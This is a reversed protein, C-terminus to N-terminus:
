LNLVDRVVEPSISLASLPLPFLNAVLPTSRKHQFTECHNLLHDLDGHARECSPCTTTDQLGIRHRYTGLLVSDGTRLQAIRTAVPRPLINHVELPDKGGLTSPYNHRHQHPANNLHYLTAHRTLRQAATSAAQLSIPVASQDLQAAQNALADAAENGDLNVHGPVYVLDTPPLTRLISRIQHVLPNRSTAAKIAIISSQSDTCLRLRTLGPPPSSVISSVAAHIAVLETQYSSCVAGAPATINRGPDFEFYCGAGGNQTGHLASGDTWLIHSAQPLSALKLHAQRLRVAPPDSNNADLHPYYAVHDMGSLPAPTTITQDRPLHEFNAATATKVAALRWYNMRNNHPHPHDDQGAIFNQEKPTPQCVGRAPHDPLRLIRERLTTARNTAVDSISPIRGEHRAIENPVNRAIGAAARAGACNLGEPRTMYSPKAATAWVAASNHAVSAVYGLHATRITHASSGWSKSAIAKVANLRKGMQASVHRAHAGFGLERDLVVGLFKPNNSVPLCDQSGPRPRIKIVPADPATPAHKRNTSFLSSCSKTDNPLLKAQDLFEFIRQVATEVSAQADSVKQLAVDPIMTGKPGKIRPVTPGAPVQDATAWVAIDDAYMAIRVGPTACVDPMSNILTCFLTPSLVSGQPM